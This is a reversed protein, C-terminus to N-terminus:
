ANLFRLDLVREKNENLKPFQSNIGLNKPELDDSDNVASASLKNDLQNEVKFRNLKSTSKWCSM